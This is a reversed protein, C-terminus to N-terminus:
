RMADMEDGSDLVAKEYQPCELTTSGIMLLNM